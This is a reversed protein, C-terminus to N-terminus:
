PYGANQRRVPQMLRELLDAVVLDDSDDEDEGRVGPKLGFREGVEGLQSKEMPNAPASVEGDVEGPSSGFDESDGTEPPSPSRPSGEVTSAPTAPLYREFADKFQSHRYGNPQSGNPLKTTKPVIGFTKLLRTVATPTIPNGRAWKAWPRDALAHLASSLETSGIPDPAGEDFVRRIDTLLLIGRSQEGNEGSEASLALAAARAQQAWDGGALDAIALPARWNDCARDNLAEPMDPDSARLAGENDAVWRAIRRKVNTLQDAPANRFRTVSEGALRRRMAIKMSRDEITDPVSGIAAIATPCYTSFARPEHNDGVLRITQGSKQHGTNIVGRLEENDRLFTDAEDILLTPRYKEITRFMAAATINGASLAKPVLAQMFGLLTTKGCRKEPSTIVLRASIDFLMFCYAHVIWLAVAIAAERPLVVYTRVLTAIEALLAAGDVSDPWPEIEEFAIPRGQGADEEQTNAAQGQGPREQQELARDLEGVTTKAQKLRDRLRIFDAINQRKTAVLRALMLAEFPAGPDTKARMVLADAEESSLPTSLIEATAGSEIDDLIDEKTTSM